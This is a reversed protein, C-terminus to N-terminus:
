PFAWTSCCGLAARTTTGPLNPWFRGVAISQGRGAALKLIDGRGRRAALGLASTGVKPHKLTFDAGHDVLLEIIPLDNDRLIAHHLPSQWRDNSFNPDAGQELLYKVGETHHWDHKRMLMLALSDKTLRGTDVVARLADMDWGEPTHYVVEPDNPDAGREILIRTLPGHHAVGAAGYLVTEHEGKNWFGANPDAGADLLATATRVFAESRQKDFRLYKSLGLYTLPDGDFPPSTRRVAAPDDGLFKRVAQEEGLVAAVHIDSLALEPHLALITNAKELTGHWLAEALFQTRLDPETM